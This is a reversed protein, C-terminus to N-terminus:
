SPVHDAVHDGRLGAFTVMVTTACPDGAESRPVTCIPPCILGFTSGGIMLLPPIRLEALKAAPSGAVGPASILM